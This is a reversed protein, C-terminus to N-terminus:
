APHLIVLSDSLEVWRLPLARSLAELMAEQDTIRFVGSVRLRALEPDSVTMRRPLYRNMDEVLEALSVDDYVLRRDRWALASEAFPEPAAPVSGATVLTGEGAAVEPGAELGVPRVRVRGETVSVRTGADRARVAFATGVAEARGHDTVIVFPRAPDPAVDVWLEGGLALEVRRVDDELRVRVRSDTNLLLRSGDALAIELREGRATEHVPGGGALFTAAVAVLLTAAAALGAIRGTRRRPRRAAAPAEGAVASDGITGLGDFLDAMTDFAARHAPSRQLWQSFARRDATAVDSARLRGIWEAAEDLLHDDPRQRPRDDTTRSM